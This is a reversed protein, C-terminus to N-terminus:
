ENDDGTIVGVFEYIYFTGNTTFAYEKADDLDEFCELIQGARKVVYIEDNM